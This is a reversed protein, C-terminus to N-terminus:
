RNSNDNRRKRFRSIFFWSADKKDEKISYLYYLVIMIYYDISYIIIILLNDTLLKLGINKTILTIIQFTLNLIYGVISRKWKSKDLFVPPLIMVFTDYILILVLNNGIYISILFKIIWTIVIVSHLFYKRKYLNKEKLVAKYYYYAGVHYLVYNIIYYPVGTSFIACFRVFKENNCAIEFFNGGFLKVIFCCILVVWTAKILTSYKDKM